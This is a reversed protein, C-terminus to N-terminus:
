DEQSESDREVLGASLYGAAIAAPIDVVDGPACRHEKGSDYFCIGGNAGDAGAGERGVVRCRTHTPTATTTPKPSEPM